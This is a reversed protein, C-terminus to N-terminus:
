PTYRRRFKTEGILARSAPDGKGLLDRDRKSEFTSGSEGPSYVDGYGMEPLLPYASQKGIVPRLDIQPDLSHRPDRIPILTAIERLTRGPVCTVIFYFAHLSTRAIFGCPRRHFNKVYFEEEAVDSLSLSFSERSVVSPASWSDRDMTAKLNASGLVPGAGSYIFLCNGGRYDESSLQACRLAARSLRRERYFQIVRACV